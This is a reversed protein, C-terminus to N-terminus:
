RSTLELLSICIEQHKVRKTKTDDKARMNRFASFYTM